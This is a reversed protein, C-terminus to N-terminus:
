TERDTEGIEKKLENQSVNVSIYGVVGILLAVILFSGGLISNLKM